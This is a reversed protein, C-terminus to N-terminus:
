FYTELAYNVSELIQEADYNGPDIELSRNLLDKAKDWYQTKVEMKKASDGAGLNNWIQGGHIYLKRAARNLSESTANNFSTAKIYDAIAADDDGKRDYIWGRIDYLIPVDPTKSLQGNLLDLAKDYQENEVFTSALSNIFLPQVIGFTNYGAEAIEQIAAKSVDSLTSDKSAMNQWCAIEYVYSQPDTIGHKRAKELAKAADPVANGSYASIGAYYYALALTTDPVLKTEKAAWEYSPIDGYIMFAEYAEPYYHKQNYLEGGYTFYDNHHGSIQSAMEKTYKPKVQGKENPVQDLPMAKMYYNFGNILEKGMEVKDVSADDKNLMLKKVGEDFAGFEIKGATSYTLPDNATEPNQIAQNITSRAEELKPLKGVLKKAQDVAAKQASMSGVAAACLAFTLLKKM